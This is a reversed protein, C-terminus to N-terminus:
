RKNQFKPDAPALASKDSWSGRPCTKCDVHRPCHWLAGFDPSGIAVSDGRRHADQPGPCRHCHVITDPTMTSM